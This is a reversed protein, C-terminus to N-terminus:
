EFYIYEFEMWGIESFPDLRLSTVTDCWEEIKTLDAELDHWKGDPAPLDIRICRDRHYNPKKDTSFFMELMNENKSTYDYRCRIRLKKYKKTDISTNYKYMQPDRSQTLSKVLMAKDGPLIAMEPSSWMYTRFNSFDFTTDSLMSEDMEINQAATISVSDNERICEFGFDACLKEMDMMPLGDTLYLKYGLDREEGDFTYVSSGVTYVATHASTSVTLVGTRRNWETFTNLMYDMCTDPDFPFCVTKDDFTEPYIDSIIEKGNIFLKFSLLVHGFGIPSLLYVDGAEFAKAEEETYDCLELRMDMLHNYARYNEKSNISYTKMESSDCVIEFSKNESWDLEKSTTFYLKATKGPVGKFSVEIRNVASLNTHGSAFKYKVSNCETCYGCPELKAVFSAHGRPIRNKVYYGYRRLLTLDQPYLHNIRERQTPTPIINTHNETNPFHKAIADLQHFKNIGCPSIFTGEGYENWTSFMVMKKKWTEPENEYKPLYKTKIWENIDSFDDETAVPRRVPDESKRRWVYGDYGSSPTPINHVAKVKEAQDILGINHEPLYGAGQWHYTAAADFGMAKEKSDAEARANMVDSTIFMMGDYGYSKAVEHMYNLAENVGEVSGFYRTTYLERPAYIHFVVKNDIKLYCPDIFYQEFWFPVFKTKFDEMTLTKAWTEWILTYYMHDKYKAYQFAENLQDSNSTRKLYGNSLRGGYWCFAQFDIGHEVMYKIEWDATEPIGEDYYGLVPEHEAYPSIVGWGGHTGNVWLSCINLGVIYDSLDAKTTPAPCYDEHEILNFLKVDDFNSMGDTSEFCLSDFDFGKDFEVDGISNGNLLVKAKGTNTDAEIRLRYWMDEYRFSYLKKGNVIFESNEVSATILATNDSCLLMKTQKADKNKFYTQFAVNGTVKEFSKQAKGSEIWLEQNQVCINGETNWGYISDPGFKDFNEYVKYNAVMTIPGPTLIVKEKKGTAFRFSLLNDSLLAHEGCFVGNIYTKSVGKDLDIYVRFFFQTLKDTLADKFVPTYSGNQSLICWNGDTLYLKYTINEDSDWYELSVGSGTTFLSTELVISGRNIYNLQRILACGETDSVDNLTNYSEKASTRPYGGRNDYIWGSSPAFSEFGGSYGINNVLLYADLCSDIHKKTSNMNEDTRENQQLFFAKSVKFKVAIQANTM